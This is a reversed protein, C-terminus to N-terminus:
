TLHRLRVVAEDVHDDSTTLAIRVHGEGAAGYFDGPTALIGIDALAAVTEWATYGPKDIWLYLGGECEPVNWKAARLADTLKDRRARYLNRQEDVHADNELAAIAAAQIPTPMVVGLHKRVHLLRSVLTPDGAFFGTRYGAMNSRKSLSNVALLNDFNGDCVDPHLVTHPRRTWGFESYCEDSVLVVDRERAWQVIARLEEVPTVRGTPNNPHNIYCIRVDESPPIRTPDDEFIIRAGAINIAAVYSPYALAPVAVASTPRVELLTPLWALLEKTGILPLVHEATVEPAGSRRRFWAAIAERLAPQGATTPYGPANSADSLAQRIFDPTTDVPSGMSLNVLGRPHASARERYSVIGEWPFDGLRGGLSPLSATEANHTM